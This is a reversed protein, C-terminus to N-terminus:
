KRAVGLTAVDHGCWSPNMTVVMFGETQVKIGAYFRTTLIPTDASVASKKSKRADHLNGHLTENRADKM